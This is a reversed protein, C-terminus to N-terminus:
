NGGGFHVMILEGAESVAEKVAEASITAGAIGAIEHEEEPSDVVEYEGVPLESFNDLFEEETIRAGLGPTEGHNLVHAGIVEELEPDVGVMVDVFAQYGAVSYEVAIGVQQDHEDIGRYFTHDDIEVEEYDVSGPLVTFIAEERARAQHELIYPNTWNFVFALFLSGFVGIFTLTLILRKVSARKDAM